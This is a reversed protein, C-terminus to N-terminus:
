TPFDNKKSVMYLSPADAEEFTYEITTVDTSGTGINPGSIIEYAVVGDKGIALYGVARINAFEGAPQGDHPGGTITGPFQPTIGDFEFAVVATDSAVAFSSVSTYPPNPSSPVLVPGGDSAFLTQGTPNFGPPVVHTYTDTDVTQIIEGKPNVAYLTHSAFVHVFMISGDIGSEGGLSTATDTQASTPNSSSGGLTFGHPRSLSDDFSGSGIVGKSDVLGLYYGSRNPGVGFSRDSFGSKWVFMLNNTTTFKVNVINQYPDLRLPPKPASGDDNRVPVPGQPFPGGTDFIAANMVGSIDQRNADEKWAGRLSTDFQKVVEQDLYQGDDVQTEDRHYQLADVTDGNNLADDSKQTPAFKVRKANTKRITSLPNGDADIADNVFCYFIEQDGDRVKMRKVLPVPIYGDPNNPDAPPDQPDTVKLIETERIPNGDEGVGDEWNIQGTYDQADTRRQFPFQETRMLDLYRSKDEAGDAANVWFLRKIHAKRLV